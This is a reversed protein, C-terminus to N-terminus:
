RVEITWSHGLLLSQIISFTKDYHVQILLYSSKGARYLNIYLPSLRTTQQQNYSRGNCSSAGPQWRENYVQYKAKHTIHVTTVSFSSHVSIWFQTTRRIQIVHKSELHDKESRHRSIPSSSRAISTRDGSSAFPNKRYGRHGSQKQPGGLRRYLPYPPTREPPSFRPRPM